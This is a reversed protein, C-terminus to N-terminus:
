FFLMHWHVSQRQAVGFEQPAASLKLMSIGDYLASLPRRSWTAGGCWTDRRWLLSVSEPGSAGVGSGFAKVVVTCWVCARLQEWMCSLDEHDLKLHNTLFVTSSQKCLCMAWFIKLDFILAWGTLVPLASSDHEVDNGLRQAGGDSTAKGRVPRQSLNAAKCLIWNLAHCLM